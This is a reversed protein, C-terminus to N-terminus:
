GVHYHTFCEALARLRNRVKNGTILPGPFTGGAFVGARDFGDLALNDNSIRLDAVPGIAASVTSISLSSFLAFSYLSFM